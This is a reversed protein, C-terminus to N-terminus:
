KEFGIIKFETRRNVRHEDDSCTVGNKCRNLLKTEGYGKAVIREKSIGNKIIYAIASESRKQSLTMNSQDSGRSDTHSGLEIRLTSNEKMIKVLKNLEIESSPLIKWSNLDYYINDLVFTKNMEMKMLRITQQVKGNEPLSIELSQNLYGQATISLNLKKENALGKSITGNETTKGAISNGFQIAADKIPSQSDYDLVLLEILRERKLRLQVQENETIPQINEIYNLSSAGVKYCKGKLVKIKFKGEADSVIKELKKDDCDYLDINAGVIPNGTVDDVVVGALPIFTNKINVRYIDDDGSNGPRNSVFYGTKGSQHITLGFDDYQTNFSVLPRSLFLDSFLLDNVFLDLGGKGDPRGNSAFFLMGSPHYFPFMENGSTNINTDLSVPLGWVSDKRIVMFIDTGGKSLSPIDSAFFLTDGTISVSPQGVSYVPDNFPMEGQIVWKKDVKKCVVLRLRVVQKKVIIGDVEVDVNVTNSLTVFLEGTKSCYSIPGEHFGSKLDSILFRENNDTSTKFLSYFTKDPNGNAIKKIQKDTYASFWLEDEVFSPGFESATTNFGVQEIEFENMELFLDSSTQGMVILSSFVLFVMNAFQWMIIQLNRM